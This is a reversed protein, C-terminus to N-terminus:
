PVEQRVRFPLDGADEIAMERAWVRRTPEWQFGHAKVVEKEEFPALSVFRAKPRLARVLMAGVDCGMEAVRELLRAITLCDTLARHAHSLGLGHALATETLSAGLKARPWQMDFKSCAWPKSAALEAPFFSRDFSARHAVFCDVDRSLAAIYRWVVDPPPATPLVSAPIANVAEAANSDGQLLSSYSSRITRHGVDYLVAGVEIVRDSTPDLGTTEVDVILVNNM